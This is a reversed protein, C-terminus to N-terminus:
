DYDKWKRLLYIHNQKLLNEWNENKITLLTKWDNQSIEIDINGNEKITVVIDGAENNTLIPIERNYFASYNKHQSNDTNGLIALKPNLKNLYQNLDDGGTKRGHHPALLIDINKIKNLLDEDSMISQWAKNGSDGCYLIKRGFVQHLIVYSIENWDPNKLNQLDTVLKESPSIIEFNDCGLRYFDNQYGQYVQLVKPSEQQQKRIQQYHEWDEKKYKNFDASSLDKQHNTDWFNSITFKDFINKIGDLHDMDPHTLIFRFIPKNVCINRLYDIPNTPHSQNNFNAELGISIGGSSSNGNCVDIVSIRGTEHEIITCDGNLVNLFHIKCEGM